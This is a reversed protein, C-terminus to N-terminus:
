STWRDDTWWEVDIDPAPALRRPAAVCDVREGPAVDQAMRTICGARAEAPTDAYVVIHWGHYIPEGVPFPDWLVAGAVLLAAIM